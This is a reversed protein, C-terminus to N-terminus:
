KGARGRFPTFELAAWGREAGVELRPFRRSGTRVAARGPQDPASGDARKLARPDPPIVAEPDLACGLCLRLRPSACGRCRRSAKNAAAARAAPLSGPAPARRPQRGERRNGREGGRCLCLWVAADAPRPEAACPRKERSARPLRPPRPSALRAGRARGRGPLPSRAGPGAAELVGGGRRGAPTEGRGRENAHRPGEGAAMPRSRAGGM